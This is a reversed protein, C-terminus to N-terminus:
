ATALWAAAADLDAQAVEHGAHIRKATLAAGSARLWDNLAAAHPGYPDHAGTLTLVELGTLDVRPPTELALMPRILVARRILGPHRAMVAGAFNAGNSYGMVVPVTDAGGDLGAERLIAPLAEAFADAEARIHDQDFRTMSLRRFWRTAGEETSRGRLGLLTARPALHRALPMLDRESGGTGHLLVMVSGDPQRPADAAYHFAPMRPGKTAPPVPAPDSQGTEANGEMGPPAFGANAPM